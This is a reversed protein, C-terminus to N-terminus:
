HCGPHWDDGPLYSALLAALAPDYQLVAAQGHVPVENSVDFWAQAGVAWYFSVDSTAPTGGWLGRAMATAYASRIAGDFQADVDRIGLDRLGHAVMPVLIDSSAFRDDSRCLLNEEACSCAPRVTTAGIGRQLNWDTAPFAAYLDAYEPIDTTVETTALVAVHFRNNALAQRVDARASVMSGTIRCALRLAQDSVKASSVVPTGYGSLYKTYFPDQCHM